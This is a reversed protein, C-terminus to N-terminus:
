PEGLRCGLSGFLRDSRLLEGTFLMRVATAVAKAMPM